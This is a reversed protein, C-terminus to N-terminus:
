TEARLNLKTLDHCLGVDRSDHVQFAAGGLLAATGEAMRAAEGEPAFHADGDLHSQTRSPACAFGRLGRRANGGVRLVLKLSTPRTILHVDDGHMRTPAFIRATRQEVRYGDLGGLPMWRMGPLMWVHGTFSDTCLRNCLRHRPLIRSRNTFSGHMEAQASPVSGSAADPGQLINDWAIGYRYLCAFLCGDMCATVRPTEGWNVRWGETSGQLYQISSAGRHHKCAGRERMVRGGEQMCSRVYETFCEWRLPSTATSSM